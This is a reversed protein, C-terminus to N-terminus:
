NHIVYLISLFMSIDIFSITIVPIYKTKPTFPFFDLNDKPISYNYDEYVIVEESRNRVAKKTYHMAMMRGTVANQM